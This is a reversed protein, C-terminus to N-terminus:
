YYHDRMNAANITDSANKLARHQSREKELEDKTPKHPNLDKDIIKNWEKVQDEIKKLFAEKPLNFGIAEKYSYMKSDGIEKEIWKSLNDSTIIEFKNPKDKLVFSLYDLCKTENGDKWAFYVNQNEKPYHNCILIVPNNKINKKTNSKINNFKEGFLTELSKFNEKNVVLNGDHAWLNKIDVDNETLSFLKDIKQDDSMSKAEKAENIYFSIDKM